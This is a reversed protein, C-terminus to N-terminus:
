RQQSVPLVGQGGFCGTMPDCLSGWHAPLLQPTQAGSRRTPAAPLGPALCCFFLPAPLASPLPAVRGGTGYTGFETPSAGPYFSPAGPQVPYQQTPVVYTSRGQLPPSSLDAAERYRSSPRAGWGGIYGWFRPALAPFLARAFCAGPAEPPQQPPPGAGGAAERRLRAAGREFRHTSPSDPPDGGSGWFLGPSWGWAVGRV